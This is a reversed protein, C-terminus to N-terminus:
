GARGSVTGQAKPLLVAVREPGEVPNGAATRLLSQLFDGADAVVPVDIHGIKRIEAEDIDVMVKKANRGFGAHNFATVSPDLRSGLILLFDCNQVIFNASRCGMIGPSGFNLPHDYDLFDIAKWTLLM